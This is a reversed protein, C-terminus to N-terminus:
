NSDETDTDPISADVMQVVVAHLGAAELTAVYDEATEGPQQERWGPPEPVPEGLGGRSFLDSVLRGDAGEWLVVAPGCPPAMAQELKALRARLDVM